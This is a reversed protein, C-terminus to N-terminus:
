HYIFFSGTQQATTNSGELMTTEPESLVREVPPSDGRVAFEVLYRIRQQNVSYVAYEDDQFIVVINFKWVRNLCDFINFGTLDTILFPSYPPKSMSLMFFILSDM